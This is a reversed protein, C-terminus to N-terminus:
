GHKKFLLKQHEVVQDFQGKKSKHLEGRDIDWGSKNAVVLIKLSCAAYDMLSILFNLFEAEENKECRDVRDVVVYVTEHAEFLGMVTVSVQSLAELKADHDSSNSEVDIGRYEQLKARLNALHDDRTGLYRKKWRLLQFLIESAAAYVRTREYLKFVYFANFAKGGAAATFYHDMLDLALPSMWCHNRLGVISEHNSGVILLMSSKGPSEWAKFHLAEAKYRNMSGYRLTELITEGARERDISQKHELLEQRRRKLSWTPLGLLDQIMMLDRNDNGEHLKMIENKLEENERRIESVNLSLLEECQLRVAVILDQANAALRQFKEPNWAAIFWRAAM